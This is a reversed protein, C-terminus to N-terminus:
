FNCGRNRGSNIFSVLKMPGRKANRLNPVLGVVIRTAVKNSAPREQDSCSQGVVAFRPEILQIL